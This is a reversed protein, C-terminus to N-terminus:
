GYGACGFAGDPAREGLHPQELRIVRSLGVAEGDLERSEGEVHAGGEGRGGGSSAVRVGRKGDGRSRM